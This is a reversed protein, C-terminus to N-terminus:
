SCWFYPQIQELLDHATEVRNAKYEAIGALPHDACFKRFIAAIYPPSFSKALKGLMNNFISIAKTSQGRRGRAPAYRRAAWACWWPLHLGVFRDSLPSRQGYHLVTMVTALPDGAVHAL